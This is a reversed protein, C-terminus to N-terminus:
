NSQISVFGLRQVIQQGQTSLAFEIFQKSVPSTTKKVGLFLSRNIPYKGAKVANTDTPLVGDIAIIRVIEQKEVQSVTAYSIGNDGLDRLIATTEDQKWTIFNPSDPAFSQGLLVIDQFAERTGSTTARNIVRIPQNAGGVQSWNTIKGLYIDRVQDKTLNGKFPNNIGVVLAISDKAIPVLQIGAQAEAAKLPRSTAAIAISGDILNKLGQNSGTPNGDPVGYASPINPNVQSFDNRLAKILAVMATSGDIGLISPNPLSTDLNLNTSTIVPPTPQASSDPTATTAPVVTSKQQSFFWYGGGAIGATVLMSLVLVTTEKGQSM